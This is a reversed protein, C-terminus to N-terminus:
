ISTSSASSNDIPSAGRSDTFFRSVSCVCPTIFAATKLSECSAMGRVSCRSGPAPCGSPLYIFRITLVRRSALILVSTWKTGPCVPMGPFSFASRWPFTALFPRLDPVTRSGSYVEAAFLVFLINTAIVTAFAGHSVSLHPV